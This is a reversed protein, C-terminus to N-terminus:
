RQADRERLVNIESDHGGVRLDHVFVEAFTRQLENRQVSDLRNISCLSFTGSSFNSAEIRLLKFLSTSTLSLIARDVMSAGMLPGVCTLGPSGVTLLDTVRDVLWCPQGNQSLVDCERAAMVKRAVVILIADQRLEFLARFLQRDRHRDRDFQQQALVLLADHVDRTGHAHEVVQAHLLRLNIRSGLHVLPFNLCETASRIWRTFLNSRLTTVHGRLSHFEPTRFTEAQRIAMTALSTSLTRM